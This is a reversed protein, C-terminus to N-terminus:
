GIHNISTEKQEITIEMVKTERGIRHSKWIHSKTKHSKWFKKNGKGDSAIEPYTKTTTTHNGSIKNGKRDSTIESNTNKM